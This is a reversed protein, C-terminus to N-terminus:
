IVRLTGAPKASAIQAGFKNGEVFLEWGQLGARDDMRAVIAGNKFDPPVNVWAGVSFPQDANFGALDGLDFHAGNTLAPAKGFKGGDRWEIPGASKFTVASANSEGHVEVGAG